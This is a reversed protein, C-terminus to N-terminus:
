TDEQDALAQILLGRSQEPLAGFDLRSLLVDRAARWPDDDTDQLNSAAGWWDLGQEAVRFAVYNALAGVSVGADRAVAAVAGKLRDARGAARDAADAALNDAAPGLLVRAAFRSARREEPDAAWGSVSEDDVLGDPLRRHGSLHDAAHCLEHALDFAWRDATHAGQKLVVVGTGEIDWFAGHFAGGDSLPLVAVGHDWAYEVLARFTVGTPGAVTDRIEDPSAPLAATGTRGAAAVLEALVRAYTAYAAVKGPSANVPMKFGPRAAALVPPDAALLEDVTLGLAQAATAAAQGIPQPRRRGPALRRVVPRPLGLDTLRRALSADDTIPGAADAPPGGLAQAIESLRALSAGRYGNAEYRQIQQPDVGLRRALEAQSLGQAVRARVLDVHLRAVANLDPGPLRGDRLGEYDEIEARLDDAQARLARLGAEAIVPHVGPPPPANVLGRELLVLQEKTKALQRDTSIM